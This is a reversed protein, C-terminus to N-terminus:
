QNMEALIALVEAESQANRIRDDFSPPQIGGQSGAAVQNTRNWAQQEAAIEPTPDPSLLRAEIAAQRIADPSLEGDYGKVFYRAAADEPDIGAKAFARERKLAAAEAAAEKLAKNEAELERMRERLPNRKPQPETDFEDDYEDYEPM